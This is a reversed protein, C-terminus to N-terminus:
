HATVAIAPIIRGTALERDHVQSLLTFGDIDPMALDAVLVDIDRTGMLDIAGAADSATAVYAGREALAMAALDRADEDDDVVLATIGRLVPTARRVRKPAASSVVAQHATPVRLVFRAGRGVGESFAEISGGHAQAIERCIALGLGLGPHKRTSSADAQRFP